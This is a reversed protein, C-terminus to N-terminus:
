QMLLIVSKQAPLRHNRIRALGQKDGKRDAEMGARGDYHDVVAQM